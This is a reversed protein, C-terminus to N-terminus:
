VWEAEDGFAGAGLQQFHWPSMPSYHFLLATPLTVRDGNPMVVGIRENESEEDDGSSEEPEECADDSRPPAGPPV